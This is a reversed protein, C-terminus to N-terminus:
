PALKLASNLLSMACHIADERSLSVCPWDSCDNDQRGLMVQVTDEINTIHIIKM